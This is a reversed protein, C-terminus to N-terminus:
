IESELGVFFECVSELSDYSISLPESDVIDGISEVVTDASFRTFDVCYEIGGDEMALRYVTWGSVYGRSEDSLISARSPIVYWIREGDLTRTERVMSLTESLRVIPASVALPLSTNM